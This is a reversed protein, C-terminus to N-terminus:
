FQGTLETRVRPSEILHSPLTNHSEANSRVTLIPSQMNNSDFCPADSMSHEGRRFTLHWWESIVKNAGCKRLNGQLGKEKSSAKMAKM